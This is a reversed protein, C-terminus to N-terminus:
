VQRKLRITITGAPLVVYVMQDAPYNMRRLDLAAQIADECGM